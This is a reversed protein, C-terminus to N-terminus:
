RFFLCGGYRNFLAICRMDTSRGERASNRWSKRKRISPLSPFSIFTKHTIKHHVPVCMCHILKGLLAMFQHFSLVPIENRSAFKRVIKRVIQYKRPLQVGVHGRFLEGSASEVISARLAEFGQYETCSVQTVTGSMESSGFIINPRVRLLFDLRKAEASDEEHKAHREKIGNKRSEEHYAIREKMILCRIEAEYVCGNCSFKDAHTAIVHIAAGPASSQICDIWYQVNEDIDRYLLSRTSEDVYLGWSDSRPAVRFGEEDTCVRMNNPDLSSAAMDWVLIYLSRRSFFLEHTGHYVRQGAFDWLCCKLKLDCQSPEWECIDVGITRDQVIAKENVKGKVVQGNDSQKNTRLCQIISTKGAMARGVFIVRITDNRFTGEETASEIDILSDISERFSSMQSSEDATTGGSSEVTCMSGFSENRGHSSNSSFLITGKSRERRKRNSKKLSRKKKREKNRNIAEPGLRPSNEELYEYYRRMAELGLECTQSPPKELPNPTVDLVKLRMYCIEKSICSLCNSGVIVETLDELKPLICPLECLNNFGLNLYQLSKLAASDPPLYISTIENDYANLWQLNPIGLFIEQM